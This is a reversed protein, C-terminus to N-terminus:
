RLRLQGRESGRGIRRSGSGAREWERGVGMCSRGSRRGGLSLSVHAERRGRRGFVPLV